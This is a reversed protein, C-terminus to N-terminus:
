TKVRTAAIKADTSNFHAQQKQFMISKKVLDHLKAETQTLIQNQMDHPQPNKFNTVHKCIRNDKFLLDIWKQPHHPHPLWFILWKKHVDYILSGTYPNELSYHTLLVLKENRYSVLDNELQPLKCPSANFCKKVLQTRWNM